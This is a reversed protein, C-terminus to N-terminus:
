AALRNIAEDVADAVETIRSTPVEVILKTTLPLTKPAQKRGRQRRWEGVDEIYDHTADMGNCPFFTLRYRSPKRKADYRGIEVVVIFGKEVLAAIARCAAMRTMRCADALQRITIAVPKEDARRRYIDILEQLAVRMNPNLQKRAKEFAKNTVYRSPLPPAAEVRGIPEHSWEETM